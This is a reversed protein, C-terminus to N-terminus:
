YYFLLENHGYGLEGIGLDINNCLMIYVTNPGVASRGGAYSDQIRIVVTFNARDMRRRILLHILGDFGRMRRELIWGPGSQDTTFAARQEM